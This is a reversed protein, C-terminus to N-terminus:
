KTFWFHIFFLIVHWGVAYRRDPGLCREVTASTWDAYPNQGTPDGDCM